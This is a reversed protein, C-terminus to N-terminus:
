TSRIYVHILAEWSSPARSSKVLPGGPTADLDYANWVMEFAHEASPGPPAVVDHSVSLLVLPTVLAVSGRAPSAQPRGHRGVWGGEGLQTGCQPLAGYHTGVGLETWLGLM